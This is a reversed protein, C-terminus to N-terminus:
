HGFVICEYDGLFDEYEQKITEKRETADRIDKHKTKIRGRIMQIDFRHGTTRLWKQKQGAMATTHHKGLKLLQRVILPTTATNFPRANELEADM